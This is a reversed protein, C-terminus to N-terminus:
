FSMLFNFEINFFTFYKTKLIYKNKTTCYEDLIQFTAMAGIRFTVSNIHKYWLDKNIIKKMVKIILNEDFTM